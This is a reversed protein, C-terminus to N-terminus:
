HWKNKSDAKVVDTDATGAASVWTMEELNLERVTYRAHVSDIIGQLATNGAYKQYDFLQRLKKEM